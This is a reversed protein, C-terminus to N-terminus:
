NKDGDGKNLKEGQFRRFHALILVKELFVSSFGYFGTSVTTKGNVFKQSLRM